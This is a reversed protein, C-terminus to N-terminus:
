DLLQYRFHVCCVELDLLFLCFASVSVPEAHERYFRELESFCVTFRLYFKTLGDVKLLRQFSILKSGKLSSFNQAYFSLVERDLFAIKITDMLM